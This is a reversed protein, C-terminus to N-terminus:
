ISEIGDKDPTWMECGVSHKDWNIYIKNIFEQPMACAWGLQIDCICGHSGRDVVFWEHLHTPRLYRCTCCCQHLDPDDMWCKEESM